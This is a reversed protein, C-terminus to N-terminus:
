PLPAQASRAGAWSLEVASTRERHGRKEREREEKKWRGENREEEGRERREREGEEEEEGKEELCFLSTAWSATHM